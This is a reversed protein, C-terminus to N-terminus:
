ETKMKQPPSFQQFQTVAIWTGREAKNPKEQAYITWFVARFWSGNERPSHPRVEASKPPKM